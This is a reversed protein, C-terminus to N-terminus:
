KLILKVKGGMPFCWSGKVQLESARFVPAFRNKSERLTGPIWPSPTPGTCDGGVARGQYHVLEKPFSTSHRFFTFVSAPFHKTFTCAKCLVNEDNAWHSGNYTHKSDGTEDRNPISDTTESCIHCASM